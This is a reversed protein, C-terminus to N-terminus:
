YLLNVLVVVQRANQAGTPADAAILSLLQMIYSKVAGDSFHEFDDLTELNTQSIDM